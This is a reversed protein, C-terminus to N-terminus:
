PGGPATQNTPQLLPSGGKPVVIEVSHDKKPFDISTIYPTFLPKGDALQEGEVVTAVGDYGVVRVVHPGGVVGKSQGTKFRGQDIPAGGGPGKNGQETDPSFYIFGKLVPKGEYTVTGSVDYRPPGDPAPSCGFSGGAMLFFGIAWAIFSPTYNM